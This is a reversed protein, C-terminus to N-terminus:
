KTAPGSRAVSGYRLQLAATGSEVGVCHGVGLYSAFNEEFTVVDPGLIFTAEEM